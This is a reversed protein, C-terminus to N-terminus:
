NDDAFNVKAKFTGRNNNYTPKSYNNQIVLSENQSQCQCKQHGPAPISTPKNYTQGSQTTDRGRNFKKNETYNDGFKEKFYAAKALCDKNTHGKFPLHM